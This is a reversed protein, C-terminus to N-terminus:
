KGDGKILEIIEERDLWTLPHNKILDIIRKQEVKRYHRELAASAENGKRKLLGDCLKCMM